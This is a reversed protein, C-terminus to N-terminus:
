LRPGLLRDLVIAVAARVPLHNFGALGAIPELRMDAAETVERALGWGTGFLVMVAPYRRSGIAERLDHFSTLREALSAGTAVVPRAGVQEQLDCLAEELTAAVRVCQLAEARPHLFLGRKQALPNDTSHLSARGAGSGSEFTGGMWHSVIRLVMERQAEVPTVMYYPEVAYTRAIRAIDHLDVSTISSTVVQRSRDYVPYHLLAVAVRSRIRVGRDEVHGRLTM